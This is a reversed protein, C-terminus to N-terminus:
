KIVLGLETLIDWSWNELIEDKSQSKSVLNQSLLSLKKIPSTKSINEEILKM